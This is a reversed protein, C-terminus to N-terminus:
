PNRRDDIRFETAPKVQFSREHATGEAGVVKRSIACPWSLLGAYALNAILRPQWM